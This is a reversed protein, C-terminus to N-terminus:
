LSKDYVRRKRTFLRLAKKIGWRKKTKKSSTKLSSKSIQEAIFPVVSGLSDKFNQSRSFRVISPRSKSSSRSRSKKTTM